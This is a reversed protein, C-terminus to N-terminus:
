WGVRKSAAVWGDPDSSRKGFMVKQFYATREPDATFYASGTPAFRWKELLTELSASDIWEKEENSM